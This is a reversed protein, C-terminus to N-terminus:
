NKQNTKYVWGYIVGAVTALIIYKTGGQYHCIGFLIASIFIAFYEAYQYKLKSLSQQVFGRWFGEEAVCVFFLNNIMWLWLYQPFKPSFKIYNFTISLAIILIITSSKSIVQQFLNKWEKQNNTLKLTLGIIILGTTIKDFNLYMTYPVADPTFQIASLALLNHFGPIFHGQLALSLIFILSGMFYIAM